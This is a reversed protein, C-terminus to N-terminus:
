FGLNVGFTFSRPSKQNGGMDPDMGQWKSDAILFVNNISATIDINHLGKQFFSSFVGSKNNISWTANISRCRFSSLSVLRADSQSWMTYKNINTTQGWPDDMGITYVAENPVIYLGPINSNPNDKTWRNLLEKNLNATPEPMRGNVFPSYPNYLFTKGGLTVACQSYVALNKYTIRFSLGGSIDSIRSGAYTLFDIPSLAKEEATYDGQKNRFKYFTPIGYDPDPGAYPYAWFAGLPYGKVIIRDTAGIIYSTLNYSAADSQEEKAIVNWNKSFNAGVSIRWSKTQLPITNITAEIGTNRIYTGTLTSQFGGNEPTDAFTRGVNSLRTYGDLVLSVRNKFFGLDFGGNWNQTREWTMYPNAISSITSYPEELIPHISQRLYQLIMETTQTNAVNGQTGYTLRINAVYLWKKTSKMFAEDALQWSVGLSYAPNFRRNANQGFTNSWDNRFNANMVYKDKLSYALITALSAKNDTFNTSRWYGKSLQEYTDTYSAPPSTGIPKLDSPLTPNAINEGRVKDYGFVTNYKSNRYSSNIEWMVMATLRHIGAFTRLFNLQNRVNYTKLLTQDTILIGGNKLVAADKFLPNTSEPSGMRYGRYRSVVLFSNEGMWSETSRTNSILGGTLQYTLGSLIDWKLNLTANFQPNDVKSSANAMDELINYPLGDQITNTNYKYSDRRQYFALSGDPEYAPIARSTSTAYGIPDIGAGAFGTTTSVSGSVSADVKVNYAPTISIGVRGTFREMSSGKEAAENKAYSLSTVYTSKATGGSVSVNYTQNTSPRTLLKLWDTNVTELYNYRNIFATEDMKGSLYMNYLGEYTYPQEIPVYQYYVGANFAEKSFNIREQSNMLNYLGYNLQEGVTLNYSARISMRDAQGKKTTIVIVGNSARSGYIATASADKLVTVSEIDSPNLWSIQSGIMDNIQVSSLDAGWMDWVGSTQAVSPQIIGDVVWLPETSGLLTSQGRITIEPASGARMSPMKVMMGAVQGQLMEDISNYAPMMISDAKLTVYSGVMDRRQINYIGTVVVEQLARVDEQMKVDIIKRNGYELEVTEMGIQSFRIKSSASLGARIPLSYSGDVGTHTGLSDLFVTVGPLPEGKPDTVIGSVVVKETTQAFVTHPMSLLCSLIGWWPFLRQWRKIYNDCM